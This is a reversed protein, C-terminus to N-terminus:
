LKRPPLIVEIGVLETMDYGTENYGGSTLAEELDYNDFDITHLSESLAGNAGDKVKQRLIARLM